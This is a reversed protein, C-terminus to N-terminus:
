ATGGPIEIVLRFRDDGSHGASVTGSLAATRQAIGSLGNGNGAGGHSGDNVIELFVGGHRTGAGISCTRASSHRLVNTVGERVTWALVGEVAPTLAPLDIDIATEIGAAALLAAAGTVEGPLSVTHEGVTVRRMARLTERTLDAIGLLESRAAAPDGPLLAGALDGKLSVASLSHGLLDHLDRSVRLRERGAAQEALDRRTRELQDVAGVLRAVGVLCGALVTFVVVMEATEAAPHRAGASRAAVFVTAATLVVPAAALGYRLPGRTLLFASAVFFVQSIGWTEAWLMPVYTLAALVVLGAARVRPRGRDLAGLTHHLHVGVIAAALLWWLAAPCEPPTPALATRTPALLGTACTAGILLFRATDATALWPGVLTPHEPDTM